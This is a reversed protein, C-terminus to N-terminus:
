SPADIEKLEGPFVGFGTMNPESVREIAEVRRGKVDPHNEVISQAEAMIPFGAVFYRPPLSLGPTIVRFLWGETSDSQQEVM